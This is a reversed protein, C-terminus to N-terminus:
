MSIHLPRGTENARQVLPNSAIPDLEPDLEFMAGSMYGRLTVVQTNGYREELQRLIARKDPSYHLLSIHYEKSPPSTTPLADQNVPRVRIYYLPNATWGIRDNGSYEGRVEAEFSTFGQKFAEWV